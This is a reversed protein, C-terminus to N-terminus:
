IVNRRKERERERERERQKERERPTEWDRSIERNRLIYGQFKGCICKCKYDSSDICIDRLTRSYAIRHTNQTHSM